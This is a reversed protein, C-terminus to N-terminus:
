TGKSKNFSASVSLTTAKLKHPMFGRDDSLEQITFKVRRGDAVTKIWEADPMRPEGPLLSLLPKREATPKHLLIRRISPPMKRGTEERFIREIPTEVKATRRFM